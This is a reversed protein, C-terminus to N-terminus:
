RSKGFVISNEPKVGSKKKIVSGINRFKRPFKDSTSDLRLDQVSEEGLVYVNPIEKIFSQALSYRYAGQNPILVIDGEEIKSAYCRYGWLDHPTCLPGYLTCDVESKLSPHSLNLLPYYFHEGYEWGSINVGGDTIVTTPSKKDLVSVVIHMSKTAIIRGPETYYEADLYPTLFKHVAQGIERAFSDLSKSRIVYYKEDFSTNEGFYTNATKLVNGLPNSGPYHVTWPYYGEVQDPFYGGGIDVFRIQKLMKPTFNQVLYDGLTQITQVFKGSDRNWSLHFQIGQLNVFECESAKMWFKQLDELPIGFKSWAGQIPIHIRVGARISKGTKQAIQELRRLETFSDLNITVKSSNQLAFLLEEDTKGPGSFLIRECGTALALKLERGSSVDLGFGREVVAKLISSYHNSKVAYFPKVEPFGDNFASKFENISQNLAPPDFLYFPTSHKKALALIADRKPYAEEIVKSLDGNGKPLETDLLELVRKHGSKRYTSEMVQRGTYAM